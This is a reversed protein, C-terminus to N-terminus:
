LQAIETGADTDVTCTHSKQDIKLHRNTSNKLNNDFYKHSANSERAREKATEKTFWFLRLLFFVTSQRTSLVSWVSICYRCVAFKFPNVKPAGDWIRKWEYIHIKSEKCSLIMLWRNPILECHWGFAAFWKLNVISSVDDSPVEKKEKWKLVFNHINCPTLDFDFDLIVPVCTISRRTHLSLHWMEAM